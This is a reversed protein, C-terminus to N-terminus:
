QSNEELIDPESRTRIAAPRKPSGSGESIWLQLNFYPPQFRGIRMTLPSVLISDSKVIV